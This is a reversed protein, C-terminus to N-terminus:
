GATAPTTAVGSLLRSEARVDALRKSEPMKKAAMLEKFGPIGALANRSLAAEAAEWAQYRERFRKQVFPFDDNSMCKIARWGGIRRVTDRIRQPLEPIVNTEGFYHKEEYEGEPNSVIYKSAHSVAVEWAVQWEADEAESEVVVGARDLVDAITLTPPFANKGRMERRCRVLAGAVSEIPLKELDTVFLALASPSLETGMVEATATIMEAIQERHKQSDSLMADSLPKSHQVIANHEPAERHNDM